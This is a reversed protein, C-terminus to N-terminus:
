FLPLLELFVTAMGRTRRRSTLHDVLLELSTVMRRLRHCSTPSGVLLEPSTRMRRPVGGTPTTNYQVSIRNWFRCKGRTRRRWLPHDVLLELSTCMCRSKGRVATANYKM